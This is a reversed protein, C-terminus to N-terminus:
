LHTCPSLCLINKSSREEFFGQNLIKSSVRVKFKHTFTQGPLIPCQTINAVGDAYGTGRQHQGHFHLTVAESLILYSLYKSTFFKYLLFANESLHSSILTLILEVAPVLKVYGHGIPLHCLLINFKISISFSFSCFKM